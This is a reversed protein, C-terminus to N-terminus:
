YLKSLTGSYELYLFPINTVNKERLGLNVHKMHSKEKSQTRRSIERELISSLNGAEETATGTWSM